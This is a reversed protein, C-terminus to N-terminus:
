NPKLCQAQLYKKEQVWDVKPYKALDEPKARCLTVFKCYNKIETPMSSTNLRKVLPCTAWADVIQRGAYKWPHEWTIDSTEGTWVCVKMWEDQAIKNREKLPIPRM